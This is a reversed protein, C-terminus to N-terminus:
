SLINQILDIFKSDIYPLAAKFDKQRINILDRVKRWTLVCGSDNIQQVAWVIERAWYQEQSEQNKQIEAYCKPLHLPIKKSSLNLIKEVAFVTVKKPRTTGDGKLQQIVKKVLPLTNEDIQKWDQSKKSSRITEKSLKHYTGYRHEGIMKVTMYPANLIKAIESYNLGQEHLKYIKEDFLQQQSKEPLKMHVLTNASINLFMAILCIEYFNIRDNTLVKQIQWLETFWNQSLDKYFEIFDKHFLTINRQQGRISRYKTNAMKSYLFEGAMVNSEMDIDAQFIKIMYRTFCFEIENNSLTYLVSQPVSEEASKLSPTAKSSISIKSDILYCKHIPCIYIGIIQHIRHWYTEGYVERDYAACLPCYRLHRTKNNKSKPMPLLNHYNGTMSKLAEFSKKRREKPLFRGYYSFMTHKEIVQEISMDRTITEILASTYTNVFEIDPRVKKSIFLEEAAFLYATYGTATYYRALWSYLLEDPYAVPFYAIM